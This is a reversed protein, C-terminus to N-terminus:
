EESDMGMPALAGYQAAKILPIPDKRDQKRGM